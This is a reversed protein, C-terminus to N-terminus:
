QLLSVNKNMNNLLVLSKNVAKTLFFFIFHFFTNTTFRIYCHFFLIFYIQM